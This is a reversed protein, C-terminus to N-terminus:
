RHLVKQRGQTEDSNRSHRCPQDGYHKTWEERYRRLARLLILRFNNTSTGMERAASPRDQELFLDREIAERYRDPIKQLIFNVPAVDLDKILSAEISEQIAPFGSLDVSPVALEKAKRNQNYHQLILNHCVGFIYGPLKHPERPQGADIQTLVAAFTDQVLDDSDENRSLHRVKNRIALYFYNYFHDLTVPDRARMLALYATDFVFNKDM